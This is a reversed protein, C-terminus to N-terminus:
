FYCSRYSPLKVSVLLLCLLASSVFQGTVSVFSM